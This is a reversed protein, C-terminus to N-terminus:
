ELKPSTTQFFHRHSTKNIELARHDVNATRKEYLNPLDKYKDNRPILYENIDELQEYKVDSNTYKMYISLTEDESSQVFLKMNMDIISIQDSTEEEPLVKNDPALFSYKM